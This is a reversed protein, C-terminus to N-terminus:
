EPHQEEYIKLFRERCVPTHNKAVPNGSDANLCDRCGPMVGHQRVRERQITFGRKAFERKRAETPRTILKDEEPIGIKIPPEISDRGLVPKWPLGKMEKLFELEWTLRDGTRRRITRM